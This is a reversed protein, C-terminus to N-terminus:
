SGSSYYSIDAPVDFLIDRMIQFGDNDTCKYECYGGEYLIKVETIRRNKMYIEKSKFYADSFRIGSVHQKEDARLTIEPTIGTSIDMAWCTSPDSDLVNDPSYDNLKGSSDKQSSRVSSATATKFVPPM